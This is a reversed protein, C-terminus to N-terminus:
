CYREGALTRLAAAVSDNHSHFDRPVEFSVDDWLTQGISEDEIAMGITLRGDPYHGSVHGSEFVIRM